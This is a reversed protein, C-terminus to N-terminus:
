TLRTVLATFKDGGQASDIVISYRIRCAQCTRLYPHGGSIDPCSLYARQHRCPLMLYGRGMPGAIQVDVRAVAPTTGSAQPKGSSV